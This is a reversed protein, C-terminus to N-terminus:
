VFLLNIFLTLVIQFHRRSTRRRRGTWNGKERMCLMETSVWEFGGCQIAANLGDCVGKGAQGLRAGSSAVRMCETRLVKKWVGTPRTSFFLRMCSRMALEHQKPTTRRDNLQVAACRACFLLGTCYRKITWCITPFHSGGTGAYRASM